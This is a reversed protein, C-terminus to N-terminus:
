LSIVQMLITYFCIIKCDFQSHTRKMSYLSAQISWMRDISVKAYKTPKNSDDKAANETKSDPTIGLMSLSNTFEEKNVMQIMENIAPQLTHRYSCLKSVTWAKLYFFYLICMNSAIFVITLKIEGSVGVIVLCLPVL